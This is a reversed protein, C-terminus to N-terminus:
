AKIHAQDSSPVGRPVGLQRQYIGAGRDPQVLVVSQLDRLVETFFDRLLQYSVCVIRSLAQKTGM